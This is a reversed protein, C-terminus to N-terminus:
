ESVELGLEEVEADALRRIQTRGTAETVSLLFVKGSRSQLYVEFDESTGDPYFAVYEIESNGSSTRPSSIQAIQISASMHRPIGLIGGSRSARENEDEDSEDSLSSLGDSLSTRSWDTVSGGSETDLFELLSLWYEGESANFLVVYDTRQTVACSRAFEMLSRMARATSRLRSAEAFTKMWPVTASTMLLIIFIVISVEILSFGFQIRSTQREGAANCILNLADLKTKRM